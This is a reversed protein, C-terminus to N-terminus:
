TGLFPILTPLSDDNLSAILSTGRELIFLETNSPFVPIIFHLERPPQSHQVQERQTQFCCPSFSNVTNNDHSMIEGARAGRQSRSTM